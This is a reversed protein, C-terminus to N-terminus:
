PIAEMRQLVKKSMAKFENGADPDGSEYVSQQLSSARSVAVRERLESNLVQDGFTQRLATVTEERFIAPRGVRSIVIGALHSTREMEESLTKIRTLLLAM